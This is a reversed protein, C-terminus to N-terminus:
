NGTEIFSEQFNELFTELVGKAATEFAADESMSGLLELYKGRADSAAKLANRSYASQKEESGDFAPPFVFEYDEMMRRTTEIVKRTNANDVGELASTMASAFSEETVPMYGLPLTFRLNQEPETFWKLFVCAAYEKKDNSKFVSAGGGRQATVKKGNEFVPYPLMAYEAQIKTNDAYTITDPLFTVTASTCTACVIEGSQFLFNAYRSFIPMYGKVGYPFYSEWIRKYLPSALNFEGDVVFDGGLQKFGVFAHNFQESPYFFFKGNNPIKLNQTDLWASYKRAADIIGEFTELRSLSVGTDRSFRDFIATNVILLETSKAIPLIYLNGDPGFRGENLFAPVYRSLEKESFRTRLDVLLGKGALSAAARPYVVAIDPLEPAGPDGGAAAILKNHLERAVAVFGTEIIIGEKAGVSSNFENILENVTELMRQEYSHWLILTVPNKPDLPSKGGCGVILVVLLGLILFLGLKTKM